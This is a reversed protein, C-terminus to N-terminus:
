QEDGGAAVKKTTKPRRTAKKKAPPPVTLSFDRGSIGIEGTEQDVELHVGQDFVLIAEGISVTSRRDEEAVTRVMRAAVAPHPVVQPGSPTPPTPVAEGEPAFTFGKLDRGSYCPNMCRELSILLEERGDPFRFRARYARQSPDIRRPRRTGDAYVVEGEGSVMGSEIPGVRRPHDESAPNDRRYEALARRDFHDALRTTDTAPIGGAVIPPGSTVPDQRLERRRKYTPWIFQRGALYAVIAFLLLVFILTMWTQWQWWSWETNDAVSAESNGESSKAVEATLATFPNTQAAPKLSDISLPITGIEMQTLGVLGEGPYILVVITGDDKVFVRGDEKLFPNNQVIEGWREVDKYYIGSLQYLTDGDEVRYTSGHPGDERVLAGASSAFLMAVSIAVMMLWTKRM